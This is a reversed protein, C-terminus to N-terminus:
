CYAFEFLCLLNLLSWVYMIGLLFVGSVAVKRGIPLQLSWIQAQTLQDSRSLPFLDSISVMPLPLVIIVVDMLFDTIAMPYLLALTNVCQELFNNGSGWWASFHGKCAFLFALSFALTWAVTFWIMIRIVCYFVGKSGGCFIRQYFFLFSLKTFGLAPGSFVM